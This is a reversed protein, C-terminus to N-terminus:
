LIELEPTLNNLKELQKENDLPTTIVTPIFQINLKILQGCRECSFINDDNIIVVENFQKGGCPCTFQVSNNTIIEMRENLIRELKLQQNSAFFDQYIFNGFIQLAFGIGVGSWYGVFPGIAIGILSSVVVTIGLKILFDKIM